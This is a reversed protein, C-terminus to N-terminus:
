RPLWTAPSEGAPSTTRVVRSARHLLEQDWTILSVDLSLALAVYTADAGRLKCEIAVRAARDALERDVEHVHILPHQLIEELAQSALDSGLTRRAIAGSVEALFLAPVYILREARIWNELWDISQVSHVDGELVSGVWVSADVVIM